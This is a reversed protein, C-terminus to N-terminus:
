SKIASGGAIAPLISVEDGDKITSNLNNLFRIDEDNLYVNVFKRLNGTEDVLRERLGPHKKDLNEILQMVTEAAIQVEAIGGTLKRLPQPIRVMVEAM